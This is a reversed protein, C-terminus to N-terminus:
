RARCSLLILHPEEPPLAQALAASIKLLEVSTTQGTILHAGFDYRFHNRSSLYKGNDPQRDGETQQPMMLPAGTAM